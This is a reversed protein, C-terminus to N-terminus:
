KSRQTLGQTRRPRSKSASSYTLLQGLPRVVYHPLAAFGYNRLLHLNHFEKEVLHVAGAADQTRASLFFKGVVRIDSYEDEYLYVDNSSSLHFVRYKSRRSNGAM